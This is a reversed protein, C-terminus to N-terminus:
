GKKKASSGASIATSLSIWLPNFPGIPQRIQYPTLVVEVEELNVVQSVKGGV